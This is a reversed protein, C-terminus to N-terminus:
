LLPSNIKIAQDLYYSVGDVDPSDMSLVRMVKGSGTLMKYTDIMHVGKLFGIDVGNKTTRMHCIGGNADSYSTIRQKRTEILRYHEILIKRTFVFLSKHESKIDIDYQM